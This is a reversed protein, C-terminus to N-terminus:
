RRQHDRQRRRHHGPRQRTPATNDVTVAIPASASTHGLTDTATMRLDYNGDPVQTSDATCSYSATTDVCIAGWAGAGQRYEFTVSTVGVGDTATGAVTITGRVLGAAPSTLAVVPGLNDIRRNTQVTSATTNGANDTALARMDYLGDAVGHHQVRLHVPDGTDTCADSWTGSGAAAYQFRM